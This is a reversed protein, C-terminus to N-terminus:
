VADLGLPCRHELRILTRFRTTLRDIPGNEPLSPAMKPRNAQLKNVAGATLSADFSPVITFLPKTHFSRAYNLTTDRFKTPSASSFRPIGSTRGRKKESDWHNSYTGGPKVNM